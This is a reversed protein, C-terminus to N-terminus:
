RDYEYVFGVGNFNHVRVVKFGLEILKKDVLRNPDSIEVLYDVLFIHNMKYNIESIDSMDEAPFNKIAAKAPIKHNDYYNFPAPLNSDEFLVLGNQESLFNTLGKWDERQYEPRFYFISIATLSILTVFTLAIWYLRRSLSSIGRAVLLYFAPLIFIMRFYSLVPVFFSFLFALVVPITLWCILMKDELKPKKIVRYILWGYFFGIISMLFSYIRIDDALRVRGIISKIGVLLVNRLTGGGVVKQWGPVNIATQQGNQLQAPFITLWPVITLIGLSMFKFVGLLKERNAWLLFIIQAPIVLYVLYDSYLVLAISFSYMWGFSKNKKLLKNLFYFSLTASFAALAYMRAEQSYYIHLPGIALLLAAVIGNKKNFLDKGLLYTIWITAVGLVVSPMRVSIESFGFIHSWVWLLVFYGPPHFDGLPYGTVFQWFPLNKASLVNIAEDLWLSQNLLILRLGLGLALVFFIM